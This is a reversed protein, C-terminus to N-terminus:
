RPQLVAGVVILQDMLDPPLLIDLRNSDITNREVVLDRKFQDFGQVLGQAEKAKFWHLCETKIQKPTAVAQGTAVVTDDNALKRRSYKSQILVRFDYRLYMLTLLKNVDLFATDPSGAANTQYTTILRDIVVQGGAVVKTTSIGDFLLNNRDPFAPDLDTEAPAKVYSLPLTQFPRAPDINGYYAVVGALHAAYEPPPCPSDNTRVISSHKSNRSDGLTSVNAYSDDKASFMVGDIQRLPGFRDSLENELATLSTADTFPSAVIHFWMDGMAAILSTLTPNSTGSAMASYSISVGAPLAEGDQYSDRLDFENGVAGGHNYHFTVVAGSASAHVAYDTEVTGGLLTAASVTAKIADTTTLATSNAATGGVRARLTVISGSVTAHVIAGAVAHANVQSAFSSAATDVSYTAAGPTVAGVTGVFTTTGVTVNDAADPSTFTVTGSAHKGVEAAIATAITSASDGSSVAIEVLEGGLYLSITGDATATGSVTATGTAYVGSSNDELVAIWVETFKNAAFWGLAMRHLMSSRGALAVVADASTVKHLSNALASGSPLKQGILLARYPMLSDGQQAQSGDIEVAVFPTRIASPINSSIM